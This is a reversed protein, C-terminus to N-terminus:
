SMNSVKNRLTRDKISLCKVMRQKIGLLFKGQPETQMANLVSGNNGTAKACYILAATMDTESTIKSLGNIEFLEKAESAVENALSRTLTNQTKNRAKLSNQTLDIMGTVENMSLRRPEADSRPRKTEGGLISNLSAQTSGM